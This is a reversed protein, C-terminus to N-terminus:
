LDVGISIAALLGTKVPTRFDSREWRLDIRFRVPDEVRFIAGGGLVWGRGEDYSFLDTGDRSGEWTRWQQWGAGALVFPEIEDGGLRARLNLRYAFLDSTAWPLKAPVHLAEAEASLPGAVDVGVRGGVALHASTREPYVLDYAGVFGGVSVQAPAARPCLVLLLLAGGLAVTTGGGITRAHRDM